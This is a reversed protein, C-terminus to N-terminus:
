KTGEEHQDDAVLHVNSRLCGLFCFLNIFVQLQLILPHPMLPINMPRTMNLAIVKCYLETPIWNLIFLDERDCVHLDWNNWPLGIENSIHQIHDVVVVVGRLLRKILHLELILHKLGLIHLIHIIHHRLILLIRAELGVL